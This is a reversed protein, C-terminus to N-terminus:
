EKINNSSAAKDNVLTKLTEYSVAGPIIKSGNIVLAPTGNIGLDRFLKINDELAQTISAAKMDKVLREGDLKQQTAINKITDETLDEKSEMIAKMMVVYGNQRAAAAIARSELVSDEGLIPVVKFIVRVNKDEKALQVLEPLVRKCFGCRPDFFEVVTNKADPNGIIGDTPLVNNLINKKDVLTKQASEAKQKAESEQIANVADKLITPDKKLADRVVDVIEKRQEANFQTTTQAYSALPMAVASALLGLSLLYSPRKLPSKIM